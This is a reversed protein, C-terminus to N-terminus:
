RRESRLSPIAGEMSCATTLPSSGARGQRGDRHPFGCNPLVFWEYSVAKYFYVTSYWVCYLAIRSTKNKLHGDQERIKSSMVQRESSTLISHSGCARILLEHDKYRISYLTYAARISRRTNNQYRYKEIAKISVHYRGSHFSVM